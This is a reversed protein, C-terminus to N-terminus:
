VASFRGGGLLSQLQCLVVEFFSGYQIGMCLGMIHRSQEHVAPMTCEQSAVGLRSM